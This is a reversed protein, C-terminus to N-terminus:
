SEEVFFLKKEGFCIGCVASPLSQNLCFSALMLIFLPNWPHRETNPCNLIEVKKVNPFRGSRRHNAQFIRTTGSVWLSTSCKHFKFIMLILWGNSPAWQLKLRYGTWATTASSGIVGNTILCGSSSKPPKLEKYLSVDGGSNWCIWCLSRLPLVFIKWVCMTSRFRPTHRQELNHPLM